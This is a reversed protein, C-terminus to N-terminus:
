LRNTAQSIANLFLNITRRALSDITTLLRKTEEEIIGLTAFLKGPGQNTIKTYASSKLFQVLAGIEQTSLNEELSKKLIRAFEVKYSDLNDSIKHTVNSIENMANSYTASKDIQKQLMHILNIIESSVTDLLQDVDQEHIVLPSAKLLRSLWSPTTASQGSAKSTAAEKFKEIHRIVIERVEDLSRAQGEIHIVFDFSSHSQAQAELFSVFESAAECLALIIKKPLEEHTAKFKGVYILETSTLISCLVKTIKTEFSDLQPKIKNRFLELVKNSTDSFNNFLDTWSPDKLCTQVTEQINNLTNDPKVITTSGLMLASLLIPNIIRKMVVEMM